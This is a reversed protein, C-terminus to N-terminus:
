WREDKWSEVEGGRSKLRERNKRRCHSGGGKDGGDGDGGDAGLSSRDLELGSNDVLEQVGQTEQVLSNVGRGGRDLVPEQVGVAHPLTNLGAWSVSDVLAPVVVSGVHTGDKVANPEM